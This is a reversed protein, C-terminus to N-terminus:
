LKVIRGPRISWRAAVKKSPAVIDVWSGDDYRSNKQDWYVVIAAVKGDDSLVALRDGPSLNLANVVHMSIAAMFPRSKGHAATDPDDDCEEVSLSYWTITTDMSLWTPSPEKGFLQGLLDDRKNVEAQSHDLDLQLQKQKAHLSETHEVLKFYAQSWLVTMLLIAAIIAVLFEGSVAYRKIFIM